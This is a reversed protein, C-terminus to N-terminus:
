ESQTHLTSKESSPSNNAEPDESLVIIKHFTDVPYDKFVRLACVLITHLTTNEFSLFYKAEPDQSWFIAKHFTDLPFRM